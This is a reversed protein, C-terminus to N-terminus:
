RGKYVFYEVGDKDRIKVFPVGMLKSATLQERREQATYVCFIGRWAPRLGPVQGTTFWMGAALSRVRFLNFISVSLRDALAERRREMDTRIM